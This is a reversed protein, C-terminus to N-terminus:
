SNPALASVCFASLDYYSSIIYLILSALPSFARISPSNPSISLCSEM